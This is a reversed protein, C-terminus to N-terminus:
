SRESSSFDSGSSPSDPLFLSGDSPQCLAILSHLDTILTSMTQSLSSVPISFGHFVLIWDPKSVSFSCLISVDLFASSM